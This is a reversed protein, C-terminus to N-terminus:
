ILETMTAKAQKLNELLVDVTHPTLAVSTHVNNVSLDLKVNGTHEDVCASVEQLENM